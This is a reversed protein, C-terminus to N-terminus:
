QYHSQKGRILDPTVIVNEQVKESVVMNIIVCNIPNSVVHRQFELGHNIDPKRAV